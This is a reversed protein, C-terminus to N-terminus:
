HYNKRFDLYFRSLIQIFPYPRCQLLLRGNVTCLYTCSIVFFLAYKMNVYNKLTFIDSEHHVHDDLLGAITM